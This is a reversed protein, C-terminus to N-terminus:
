IAVLSLGRSKTLTSNRGQLAQPRQPPRRGGRREDGGGSGEAAAAPGGARARACFTAEPMQRLM